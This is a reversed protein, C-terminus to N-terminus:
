KRHDHSLTSEFNSELENIFYYLGLQDHLYQLNYGTVPSHYIVEQFLLWNLDTM